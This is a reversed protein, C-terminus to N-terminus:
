GQWQRSTRNEIRYDKGTAHKTQQCGCVKAQGSSDIGTLFLDLDGDMDYDVWTASSNRLGKLNIGSERFTEDSNQIYLKTTPIGQSNVGTFVIDNLGNNTFDAIAIGGNELKPFSNSMTYMDNVPNITSTKINGNQDRGTAVVTLSSDSFHKLFAVEITSNMLHLYNNYDYYITRNSQSKDLLTNFIIGGVPQKSSGEGNYVIDNDGDLDVDVIKLDGKIFGTWNNTASELEFKDQGNVRYYVNFVYKDSSDLGAIALDIDGDNDLDGWAMKTDYLQPLGYDNTPEFYKGGMNLYVKTEPTTIDLGSVVLDIWGDKNIDAWKIDGSYLNVFNQQTDKFVGNQNEYLRTVAGTSPSTGMVAVDLDGDRDYDGWAVAGNKLGIFPDEKLTLTKYNDLLTFKLTTENDVLANQVYSPTLIISENGEDDLQDEIGQIKLKGSTEGAKIILQPSEQIRQIRYNWTDAVYINGNKDVFVGQPYDFQNSNAGRGNGGAITTLRNNQSSWKVIKDGMEDAYYINNRNDLSFYNAMGNTYTLVQGTDSGAKWMMIRSGDLVFINGSTDVSVDRPNSFNNNDWGQGNGGAVTIGSSGGPEWKQIRYNGQDVIYINGVNDVYLGAPNSLQNANNGKGNGGAVTTWTTDNSLKLVRNNSPDSLYIENNNDIFFYSAYGGFSKVSQLKGSESNWMRLKGGDMVFINGTMDVFVNTPNGLHTNDWGQGNGGIITTASDKTPFATTYDLNNIATGTLDFNIIADRSAPASLTATIDLSQHEAITDCTASYTITPDDDSILYLRTITDNTKGNVVSDLKFIISDRPEVLDDDLGKTSLTISGTSDGALITLKHASLSYDTSDVASGEMSFLVEINKGSIPSVKATLLVNTAANELISTQNLNLTVFPLDDNDTVNMTISDSNGLICDSGVSPKLIINEEPEDLNDDIGVITMKGETEGAKVLIQPSVQVKQVRYNGYDTVYVNGDHDVYLGMPNNLQNPNSGAGNGGAITEWSGGPNWKQIRHNTNDSVFITGGDTVMLRNASNINILSTRITDGTRWMIIRSNDLIYLYGDKDIGIDYPSWLQNENWGQGNGGAVTIGSDAGPVWKQVRYNNQDVVFINGTDDVAIGRPYNLQNADTGAGHGGAVTIWNSAGKKLEIIRQNDQDSVFINGKKDMTFYYSWKDWRNTGQMMEGESAGPAWKMIGKYDLVYVNGVSDVSVDQPYYFQNNNWGQGNGGAVTTAQGKTAFDLKYDMGYNASGSLGFNIVADRSAAANLTVTVLASDSELMNNKTFSVTATPDDDSILYLTQSKIESTANYITDVHFVITDTPEVKSDDLNQTSISINGVTDGAPITIEYSSLSYDTSDQASGSMSFQISIEKGSQVSTIASLLVATPSNELISPQSLKFTVTPPADNDNLMLSIPDTNGLICDAGVSPTMVINEDPEDISDNIAKITMKGETEGAKVLIQPSEQIKQVRYNGNDAVYINGENDVFLGRPDQLQNSNSGANNGGAITQWGKDPSWKQVSNQSQNSFYFNGSDDKEFYNRWYNLSMITTGSTAGAAWKQVRYNNADLVYINGQADVIVDTPSNLKDPEMGAYNSGAVTVGTTADKAWKQIRHNNQDAIYINGTDDIYIGRPNSLQNADTGAGNGGAVTIWGSGGDPYELVKNNMNDVVYINGKKDMTFYNYWIYNTNAVLTGETAGPAWKIVGNYDLVYINGTSDVFIDNPGHFQNAANGQGNGGAVTSAQGKTEFEATYDEGYKATGTYKFDILADRSAAANLTATVEVSDNESLEGKGSLISATPDDDSILTITKNFDGSQGANLITDVTVNITEKVEIESDQMPEVKISDSLFGPLIVLSDESVSYDTGKVATGSYNFKVVIRDPAPTNSKAILYVSDKSESLISKSMSVMVLPNGAVSFWSEHGEVQDDTGDADHDYATIAYETNIDGGSLSFSTVNGLDIVHSYSYGTPDGYYLKYGAVDAEKNATWSLIIDNGSQKKVINAPLSIPAVTDPSTLPSSFDVQGKNINDNQDYIKSDIDNLVNPSWYNRRADIEYETNNYIINKEYGFFNCSDLDAKNSLNEYRIFADRLTDNSGYFTNFKISNTQYYSYKIIGAGNGNNNVFSCYNITPNGWDVNVAVGYDTSASLNETFLNQTIYGNRLYVTGGYSGENRFFFCKKVLLNVYNMSTIAGAGFQADPIWINNKNYGWNKNYKFTCNGVFLQVDTYIASYGAYTFDCFEFVSGSTYNKDSDWQSAIAGNKLYINDWDGASPTKANSTFVIHNDRIGRAVIGGKITIQKNTDLKIVVGPDITLTVGSNVLLDGTVIFPSKDVTWTSDTAIVGSVETQAYSYFSIIIFFFLLLRKM